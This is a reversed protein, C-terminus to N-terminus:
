NSVPADAATVYVLMVLCAVLIGAFGAVLAYQLASLALVITIAGTIMFLAGFLRHARAWLLPDSLTKGTRIGMIANPRLRPMVNGATAVGLGVLVAFVRPLWDGGGAARGILTIHMTVVFAVVLAVILEYTKEFRDIASTELAAAPAWRRFMSRSLREGLSSRLVVFLLYVALAITPMLVALAARPLTETTDGVFPFLESWDPAVAAQLRSFLLASVLYAIAILVLSLWKRM